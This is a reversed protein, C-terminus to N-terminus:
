GVGRAVGGRRCTQAGPSRTPPRGAGRRAAPGRGPAVLATVASGVRGGIAEAGDGGAGGLVAPGRDEPTAGGLGLRGRAPPGGARPLVRARANRLRGSRARTSTVRHLGSPIRSPTGSGSSATWSPGAYSASASRGAIAAANIPDPRTGAWRMARSCGPRRSSHYEADARYERASTPSTSGRDAARDGDGAGRDAHARAEAPERHEVGLPTVRRREGGQEQLRRREEHRAEVVHLLGERAVPADDAEHATHHALLGGLMGDGRRERAGARLVVDVVVAPDRGREPKLAVAGREELRGAAVVERGPAGRELRM